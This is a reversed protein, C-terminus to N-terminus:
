SSSSAPEWIGHFGFPIIQDFYCRAVPGDDLHAADLVELHSTKRAADMVLTLLWGDDEARETRSGARPVFVAESPYRDTGPAYREVNGTELDHKFLAVPPVKGAFSVGYVFRHKSAEVSPSVRPLEISEDLLPLSKFTKRSPNV